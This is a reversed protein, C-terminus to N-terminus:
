AMMIIKRDYSPDITFSGYAGMVRVKIGPELKTILRTYPSKNRMAFKLENTHPSNVFSFCRVHSWKGNVKFSIAAYQGPAFVIASAENEPMLTLLSYTGLSDVQKVTYKQM